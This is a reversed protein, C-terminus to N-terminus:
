DQNAQLQQYIALRDAVQWHGTIKGNEFFYVTAGSMRLQKGTAPFGSIDGLHTGCWLWTICVSDDNEYLTQIEFAQNPVPARSTAVRHQFAEVDLVMGDWPDGPDHFVTYTDAMFGPIADIRGENWVDKIFARLLQAKM